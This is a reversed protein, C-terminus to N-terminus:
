RDEHNVRVAQSDPHEAGLAGDFIAVARALLGEADDLHGQDKLLMGLNNLSVGVDRHDPGLLREKIALARRYLREAEAPRGRADHIAALNNLTVAVEYHDPGFVREFVALAQLYLAEAEDLKGQGDLLAALNAQDAAVDPHDPGLAAERLALARRAYPEGRAYRQRAHELGGLNHYVTAVGPHAAGHARLLIRLVRLYMRRAEDFRGTYKYLVAQANLVLAIEEEGLPKALSLAQRLATESVAYKAQCRCLWGLQTLARVRLRRLDDGSGAAGAEDVAGALLDVARWCLAEGLAYEARGEHIGALNNLITAADVADDVGVVSAADLAALARAALDGAAEWRQELRCAMAQDHLDIARDLADLETTAAAPM